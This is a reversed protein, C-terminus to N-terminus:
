CLNSSINVINKGFNTGERLIYAMKSGIEALSEGVQQGYDGVDITVFMRGAPRMHGALHM